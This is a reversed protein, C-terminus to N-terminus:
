NPFTPAKNESLMPALLATHEGIRVKWAPGATPEVQPLVLFTKVPLSNDWTRILNQLPFTTDEFGDYTMLSTKFQCGIYLDATM